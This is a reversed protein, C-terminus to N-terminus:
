YPSVFGFKKVDYEKEQLVELAKLIFKSEENNVYSSGYHQEPIEHNIFLMPKERHLFINEPQVNRYGSEIQNAYFLTNPVTLLFDHMRYQTKLMRFYPYNGKLLRTFMSDCEPAEGKYIPGLQMQDGILVVQEAERMTLLTEIEQAQTAEDIIVKRFRINKFVNSQVAKCTTIIVPIRSLILNEEKSKIEMFREFKEKSMTRLGNEDFGLLKIQNNVVRTKQRIMVKNKDLEWTEAYQELIEIDDSTAQNEEM